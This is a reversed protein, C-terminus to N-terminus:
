HDNSGFANPKTLDKYAPYMMNKVNRKVGTSYLRSHADRGTPPRILWIVCSNGVIKPKVVILGFITTLEQTVHLNAGRSKKLLAGFDALSLGLGQLVTTRWLNKLEAGIYGEVGAM